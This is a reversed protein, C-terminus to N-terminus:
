APVPVLRYGLNKAKRHLAKIARQRAQQEYFGEGPDVYETQNKLMAYIIRALKHATATVAEPAGLRARMSRYYSGLASKSHTLSRAALRLAAAARNQSKLTRSRIVKGGTIDNHPCLSLWSSFHKASQWPSMDVGIESLIDQATLVNLGPIHTLDVGALQYLSLRLDFDPANGEPKRRKRKPPQLPKDAPDVKPEFSAYLAQLQADCDKIQQQFFDYAQLTQRLAFLHQPLYNGELAKAIEDQSHHCRPDRHQALKLPDHQGNAIDRIIALGTAGSIDSVVNSLKLNMQQLAKHLHNIERAASQILSDRHRVLDRLPRFSARL